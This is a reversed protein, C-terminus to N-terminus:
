VNLSLMIDDVSSVVTAAVDALHLNVLLICRRCATFHAHDGNDWTICVRPYEGGTQIILTSVLVFSIVITQQRSCMRCCVACEKCLKMVSCDNLSM